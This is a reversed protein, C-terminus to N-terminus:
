ARPPSPSNENSRGLRQGANNDAYGGPKSQNKRLLVRWSAKHSYNQEGERNRNDIAGKHQQPSALKMSLKRQSPFRRRAEASRGCLPTRHGCSSSSTGAWMSRLRTTQFSRLRMLRCCAHSYANLTSPLCRGESKSSMSLAFFSPCRKLTFLDFSM